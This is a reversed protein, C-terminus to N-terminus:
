HVMQYFAVWFLDPTLKSFKETLIEEPLKACNKSFFGLLFGCTFFDFLGLVANYVWFWSGNQEWYSEM